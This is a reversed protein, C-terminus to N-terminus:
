ALTKGLACATQEPDRRRCLVAVLAPAYILAFNIPWRGTGVTALTVRSEPQAWHGLAFAAFTLLVAATMQRATKPLLLLPVWEYAAPTQPVLALGALLRANPDRWRSLALLLLVGGPRMVPAVLHESHHLADIWRPLWGPVVLFSLVLLALGGGIAFRSPRAVFCAAGISPKGVWIFGLWPLVLGATILPSWQAVFFASLYGASLLGFLGWWGRGTIAYALTGAGGGIWLGHALWEPLAALPAVVLIATGPYYLPFGLKANRVAAYPEAGGLLARAAIILQQFDSDPPDVGAYLAAALAGALIGVALAVLARDRDVPTRASV